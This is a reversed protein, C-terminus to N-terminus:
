LAGKTSLKRRGPRSPGACVHLRQIKDACHRQWASSFILRSCMHASINKTTIPPLDDAARNIISFLNKCTLKEAVFVDVITYQKNSSIKLMSRCSRLWGKAQRQCTRTPNLSPPAHPPPRGPLRFTRHFIIKSDPSLREVHQSEKKM